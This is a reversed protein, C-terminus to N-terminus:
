AEILRPAGGDVDDILQDSLVTVMDTVPKSRSIGVVPSPM